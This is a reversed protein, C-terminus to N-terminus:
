QKDEPAAESENDNVEAESVAEDENLAQTEPKEDRV